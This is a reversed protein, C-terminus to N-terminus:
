PIQQRIFTRTLDARDCPSCLPDLALVLPDLALVLPLVNLILGSPDM